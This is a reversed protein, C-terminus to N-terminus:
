VYCLNYSSFLQSMTHQQFMTRKLHTIAVGQM